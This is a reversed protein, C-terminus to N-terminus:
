MEACSSVSSPAAPAAAAFSLELLVFIKICAAGVARNMGKTTSALPRNVTSVCFSRIPKDRTRDSAHGLSQFEVFTGFSEFQRCAFLLVEPHALNSNRLLLDM